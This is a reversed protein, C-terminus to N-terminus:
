TQIRIWGLLFCILMRIRSRADQQTTLGLIPSNHIIAM